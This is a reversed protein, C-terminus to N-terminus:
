YYRPQHQNIHEACYWLEYVNNQGADDLNNRTCDEHHCRQMARGYSRVYNDAYYRRSRYRTFWAGYFCQRFDQIRECAKNYLYGTDGLADSVKDRQAELKKLQKDRAKAYRSRQMEEIRKVQENIAYTQERAADVVAYHTRTFRIDAMYQLVTERQPTPAQPIPRASYMEYTYGDRTTHRTRTTATTTATTM